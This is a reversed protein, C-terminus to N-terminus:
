ISVGCSVGATCRGLLRNSVANTNSVCSLGQTSAPVNSWTGVTQGSTSRAQIMFGRFPTTGFIDRITVSIIFLLFFVFRFCGKYLIRYINYHKSPIQNIYYFKDVLSPLMEKAFCGLRWRVSSIMTFKMWFDPWLFEAMQVSIFM